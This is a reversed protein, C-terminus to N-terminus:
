KYFNNWYVQRLKKKVIVFFVGNNLKKMIWEKFDKKSKFKDYELFQYIKDNQSYEWIDSFYTFEFPKVIIELNEKSFM